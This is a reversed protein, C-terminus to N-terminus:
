GLPAVENNDSIAGFEVCIRFELPEAVASMFYDLGKHWLWPPMLPVIEPGYEISVHWSLAHHLGVEGKPHMHWVSHKFSLRALLYELLDHLEGEQKVHCRSLPVQIPENVEHLMLQM